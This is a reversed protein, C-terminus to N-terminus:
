DREKLLKWDWLRLNGIFYFVKRRAAAFATQRLAYFHQQKQVHRGSDKAALANKQQWILYFRRNQLRKRIEAGTRGSVGCEKGEGIVRYANHVPDFTIPQLLNPDLPEDEGLVGEDASVNM